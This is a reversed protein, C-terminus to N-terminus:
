LYLDREESTEEPWKESIKYFLAEQNGSEKSGWRAYSVIDLLQLAGLPKRLHLGKLKFM